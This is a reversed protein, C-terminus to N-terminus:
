IEPFRQDKGRIKVVTCFSYANMRNDGYEETLKVRVKTAGDVKRPKWGSPNPDMYAMVTEENVVPNLQCEGLRVAIASAKDDTGLYMTGSEQGSRPILTIGLVPQKDWRVDGITSAPGNFLSPVFRQNFAMRVGAQASQGARLLPERPKDGLQTLKENDDDPSKSIPIEIRLARLTRHADGKNRRRISFILDYLYKTETALYDLPSFITKSPDNVVPVLPKPPPPRYDPHILMEFQPDGSSAWPNLLIKAAGSTTMSTIPSKSVPIIRAINLATRPSVM